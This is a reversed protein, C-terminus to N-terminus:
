DFTRSSVANEASLIERVECLIGILTHESKFM